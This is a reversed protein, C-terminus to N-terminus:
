TEIPKGAHEWAEFGGPFNHVDTFGKRRLLSAAISSRTGGQCVTVIPLDRPLDDAMAELDGLFLHRAGPIHGRAWESEGRVDIVTLDARMAIDDVDLAETRNLPRGAARWQSRLEADGWATVRDLGILRLARLGRDVHARDEALLVVDQDYPVVSGAWNTFSKGFPIKITGPIHEAGFKGSGRM